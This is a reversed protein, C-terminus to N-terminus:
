YFIGLNFGTLKLSRKLLSIFNMPFVSLVSVLCRGFLSIKLIKGSSIVGNVKM